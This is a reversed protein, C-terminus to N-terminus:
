PSFAVAQSTRQLLRQFASVFIDANEEKFVGLIYRDPRLVIFQDQLGSLFHTDDSKVVAFPLTNAGTPVFQDKYANQGEGPTSQPQICVCRVGLRQWFDTKLSAFAQEPHNHLRLLAFGPGLLEDLRMREGQLTTVEPQPLLAGAKNSGNSLLFGTTYKAQPKLGAEALFERVAPVTNLVHLIINRCFAVPRATSMVISGLFSSFRIMQAVHRYREQHYSDLLQPAALGQLVMALKWSLNHADRMGSNLGQGGFPPMMHAADGLLFVRGQSFSQALTSHFTYVMQRIIQLHPSGGAQQILSAISEKELLEQETEGPLLMFEWRRGNNPYPVTVAPRRPNCFFTVVHSAEKDAICDVVLWKQPFTIGKMPMNLRRRVTSKGGDCALLYACRVHQLLGEPTRMSVVVGDDSQEFTEVTHEFRLKVCAFRKLGDLLMAEFAPQYFTSIAPHGNRKNAPAVKALLRGEAIYCAPVNALIRTSMATGLGMAQCIRLGEDDIAIAKPYDSLEANREIILTEIGAMGLLNGTILGTPGAGVIVVPVSEKVQIGTESVPHGAATAPRLKKSM